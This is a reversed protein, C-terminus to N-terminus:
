TVTKYQKTIFQFVLYMKNCGIVDSGGIIIIIILINNNNNNNLNNKYLQKNANKIIKNLNMKIIAPRIEALDMQYM